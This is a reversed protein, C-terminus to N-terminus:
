GIHCRVNLSGPQCLDVCVIEKLMLESNAMLTIREQLTHISSNTNRLIVGVFKDVRVEAVGRLMSHYQIIFLLKIFCQLSRSPDLLYSLATFVNPM